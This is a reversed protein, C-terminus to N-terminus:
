SSAANECGCPSTVQEYNGHRRKGCRPCVSYLDGQAMMHAKVAEAAAPSMGRARKLRAEIARRRFDSM